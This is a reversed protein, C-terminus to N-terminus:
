LTGGITLELFRNHPITSDRLDIYNLHLFIYNFFVGGIGAMVGTGEYNASRDFYKDAVTQQVTIWEYHHSKAIGYYTGCGATIFPVFWRSSIYRYALTWQVTAAHMSLSFRSPYDVGIKFMNDPANEPYIHRHGWFQYGFSLDYVQILDARVTARLTLGPSQKYNRDYYLQDFDDEITLDPINRSVIYAAGLGLYPRFRIRVQAEASGFLALAALLVVSYSCVLSRKM